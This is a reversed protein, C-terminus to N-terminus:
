VTNIYGMGLGIGIGTLLNNFIFPNIINIFSLVGASLVGFGFLHMINSDKKFYQKKFILLVIILILLISMQFVSFMYAKLNEIMNKVEHENKKCKSM